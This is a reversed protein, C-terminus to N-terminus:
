EATTRALRETVPLRRLLEFNSEPDIVRGGLIVRDHVTDPQNM